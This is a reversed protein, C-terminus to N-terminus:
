GQRLLVVVAREQLVRLKARTTLHQNQETQPALGLYFPQPGFGCQHILPLGIYWEYQLSKSVM